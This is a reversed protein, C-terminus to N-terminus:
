KAVVVLETRRNKARGDETDNSALPREQGFGAYDLRAADIGNAVMMDRVAKARELALQKNAAADGANDTHGELRTKATPYAKLIAVVDTVTRASEPTLAASGTPFNLDEFVFTRPVTTDATNGLFRALNYKFSGERGELLGGGPLAIRAVQQQVAQKAQETTQGCARWSALWAGVLALLAVPLLWRLFSGAAPGLPVPTMRAATVSPGGLGLVGSLAAPMRGALASKEGLLLNAVGGANLGRAKKERGLVGLVLPAALSLLSSASSTKVGSASALQDVVTDLKGGFVTQLVDRGTSMATQTAPGGGLLAGLNNLVSGDGGVRKVLGLLQSAGTDSSSLKMLGALITPVMGAFSKQTSTPSEGVLAAAKQIRDPTLLATATELLDAM